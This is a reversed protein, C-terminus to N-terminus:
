IAVIFCCYPYFIKKLTKLFNNENTNKEPDINPVDFLWRWRWSSYNRFFKALKRTTMSVQKKVDTTFNRCNCTKRIRNEAMYLKARFIVICLLQTNCNWRFFYAHPLKPSHIYQWEIIPHRIIRKIIICIREFLRFIRSSKTDSLKKRM